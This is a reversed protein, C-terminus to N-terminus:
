ENALSLGYLALKELIEELSKKGLNRIKIMDEVTRTVIDGVTEICTSHRLCNITRVSLDLEEISWTLVDTYSNLCFDPYLNKVVQIISGNSKCDAKELEKKLSFISHENDRLWCILTKLYINWFVETTYVMKDEYTILLQKNILFDDIQRKMEDSFSEFQKVKAINNLLEGITTINNEFLILTVGLPLEELMQDYILTNIGASKLEEIFVLDFQSIKKNGKINYGMSSLVKLLNSEVYDEVILDDIVDDEGNNFNNLEINM